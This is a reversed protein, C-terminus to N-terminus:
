QSRRTGGDESTVAPKSGEAKNEELWTVVVNNPQKASVVEDEEWKYITSEDVIDDRSIVIQGRKPDYLKYAGAPHYGVFVLTESRDDLKRRREAPVHRYCVSGFIKLCRVDPKKGSWIEEPTSNPLAKTPCRNLLYVAIAVAEGWLYNLLGKSTIM